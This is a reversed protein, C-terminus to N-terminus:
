RVGYLAEGCFELVKGWHRRLRVLFPMVDASGGAKESRGPELGEKLQFSGRSSAAQRREARDLM